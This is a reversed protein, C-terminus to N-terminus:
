SAGALDHSVNIRKPRREVGDPVEGTADLHKRYDAAKLKPVDEVFQAREDADLGEIVAKPDKIDWSAAIERTSWRGVGPVDLFNGAGSERHELAMAELQEELFAMQPGLKLRAADNESVLMHLQKVLEVDRAKLRALARGMGWALRKGDESATPPRTFTGTDTFPEIVASLITDIEEDLPLGTYQENTSDNM